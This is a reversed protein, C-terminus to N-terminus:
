YNEKNIRTWLPENGQWAVAIENNKYAALLELLKTKTYGNKEARSLMLLKHETFDLINSYKTSKWNIYLQFSTRKPVDVKKRSM